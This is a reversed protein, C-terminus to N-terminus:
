FWTAAGSTNGLKDKVKIILYYVSQSTMPDSVVYDSTTQYTGATAPNADPVTGFYVYYGDVGSGNVGDSAGSWSFYPHQYEYPQGSFIDISGAGRLSKATLQSPQTPAQTEQTYDFNINSIEPSATGDGALTVRIQLFRNPSSQINGGSV